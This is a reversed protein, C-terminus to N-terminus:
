CAAQEHGACEGDNAIGLEMAGLMSRPTGCQPRENVSTQRCVRQHYWVPCVWRGLM